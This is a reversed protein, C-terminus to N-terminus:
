GLLRAALASLGSAVDGHGVRLVEKTAPSLRHLTDGSLYWIAEESRGSAAHAGFAFLSAEAKEATTQADGSSSVPVPAAAPTGPADARFADLPPLVRRLLSWLRDHPATAVEAQPHVFDIRSVASGEAVTARLTVAVDLALDPCLYLNTLFAVDSMRAVLTIAAAANTQADIARQWDPAVALDADVIGAARWQALLEEPADAPAHRALHEVAAQWAPTALRGVHLGQDTSTMTSESM